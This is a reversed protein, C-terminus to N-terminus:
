SCSWLLNPVLIHTLNGYLLLCFPVEGTALRLTTIASDTLTQRSNDSDQRLARRAAAVTVASAAPWAGAAAAAPLGDSPPLPQRCPRRLQRALARGPRPLLLM